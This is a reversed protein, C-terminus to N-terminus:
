EGKPYTMLLEICREESSHIRYIILSIREGAILFCSIRKKNLDCEEKKHLGCEGKKM